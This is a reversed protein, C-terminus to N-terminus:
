LLNKFFLFKNIKKIVNELEDDEEYTYQKMQNLSGESIKSEVPEQKVNKIIM